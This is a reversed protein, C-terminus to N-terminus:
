TFHYEHTDIICSNTPFLRIDPTTKSLSKATYCSLTFLIPIRGNNPNNMCLVLPISKGVLTVRHQLFCFTFFPLSHPLTYFILKYTTRM